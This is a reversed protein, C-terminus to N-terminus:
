AIITQATKVIFYVRADEDGIPSGNDDATKFGVIVVSANTNTDVYWLGTAADKSLGYSAFLDTQVLAHPIANGGDDTALTGEFVAAQYAPLYRSFGPKAPVHVAPEDAFGLIGGPDTSAAEAYTGTGADAVLLAGKKFTEGTKFLEDISAHSFTGRNPGAVIPRVAM